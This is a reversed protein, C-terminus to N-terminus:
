SKSLCWQRESATAAFYDVCAKFAPKTSSGRATTMGPPFSVSDKLFKAHGDCFVYNAGGSHLDPWEWGNNATTAAPPPTSSTGGRNTYSQYWWPPALRGASGGDGVFITSAPAEIAALQPCRYATGNSNTEWGERMLVQSYGYNRINGNGPNSPCHWVGTFANPNSGTAAQPAGSKVYPLILVDWYGATTLASTPPLLTVNWPPMVEDFDQTYMMVATGMQKENNMCATRRAAERAQAFVPFLIAALIAIIAIVVLLEILTFGRRGHRPPSISRQQFM